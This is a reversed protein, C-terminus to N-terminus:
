DLTTLLRRSILTAIQCNSYLRKSFSNLFLKGTSLSRRFLSSSHITWCSRSKLARTLTPHCTKYPLTAKYFRKIKLIASKLYLKDICECHFSRRYPYVFLIVTFVITSGLLVVPLHLYSSLLPPISSIPNGRKSRSHIFFLRTGMM